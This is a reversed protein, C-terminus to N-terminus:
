ILVLFASLAAASEFVALVSADDIVKLGVMESQDRSQMRIDLGAAAHFLVWSEGINARSTDLRHQVEDAYGEPWKRHESWALDGVSLVVGITRMIDLHRVTDPALAFGSETERPPRVPLVILHWGEAQPVSSRDIDPVEPRLRMPTAPRLDPPLDDATPIQILPGDM